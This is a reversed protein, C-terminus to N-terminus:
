VSPCPFRSPRNSPNRQHGGIAQLVGMMIKGLLPNDKEGAADKLTFSVTGDRSQFQGTLRIPMKGKLM